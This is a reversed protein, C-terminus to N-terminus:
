IDQWSGASMESLSLSLSENRERLVESCQRWQLNRGTSPVINISICLFYINCYSDFTGTSRSLSGLNNKVDKMTKTM